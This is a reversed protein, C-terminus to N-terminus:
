MIDRNRNKEVLYELWLIKYYAPCYFYYNIYSWHLFIQKFPSPYSFAPRAQFFVFQKQNSNEFDKINHLDLTPATKGLRLLSTRLLIHEMMSTSKNLETYIDDAIQNTYPELVAPHFTSMLRTLHYMLVAPKVYYPSLYIPRTIYERNKVMQVLLDLTASDQKVFPLKKDYMFYLINCHVSFDFDVPMRYGLWTSYAPINRYKKFTAYIKKQSLNSTNILQKKLAICDSDNNDSGMLIMVTDDSDEGQAFVQKLHQFLFTHPMIKSHTPWFNYYPYGYKNRYNPYIATAKHVVEEIIKKNVDTLQPLLKKLTFTAISTYFVNNDPQYNHPTGACERFSPFSGAYYEGDTSVQQRSIDQVLSDILAEDYYQAACCLHAFYFSILFVIYKM